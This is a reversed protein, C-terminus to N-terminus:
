ARKREGNERETRQGRGGERECLIAFFIKECLMSYLNQVFCDHGAIMSPILLRQLETLTSETVHGSINTVTTGADTNDTDADTVNITVDTLTDYAQCILPHM